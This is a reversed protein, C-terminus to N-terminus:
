RRRNGGPQNGQVGMADFDRNLDRPVMVSLRRMSDDYSMSSLQHTREDVVYVIANNGGNIEGPIMLYDDTSMAAAAQADARDDRLVHSLVSVGLAANVAVLLYLLPQKM